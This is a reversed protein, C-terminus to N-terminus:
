SAKNKGNYILLITKVSEPFLNAEELVDLFKPSNKGFIELLKYYSLAWPSVGLIESVDHVNGLPIYGRRLNNHFYRRDIGLSNGVAASGGAALIVERSLAESAKKLKPPIRYPMKTKAFGYGSVDKTM